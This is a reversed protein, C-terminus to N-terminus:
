DPFAWNGGADECKKQGQWDVGLSLLQRTGM